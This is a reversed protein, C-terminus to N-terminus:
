IRKLDPWHLTSMHILPSCNYLHYIPNSQIATALTALWRSSSQTAANTCLHLGTEVDDITHQTTLLLTNGQSCHTSTPSHSHYLPSLQSHQMFRTYISAGLLTSHRKHQIYFLRKAQGDCRSQYAICNKIHTYTDLSINCPAVIQNNALTCGLKTIPHELSSSIKNVLAM